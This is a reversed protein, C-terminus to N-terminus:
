QENGFQLTRSILIINNLWDASLHDLPVVKGGIEKAISEAMKSDFQKQIFVTKIELERATDIVNKIQAPSPEKGDIEISIEEFGYDRAFYALAPHYIIFKRNKVESLMTKLQMDLKELDNYFAQYNSRFYASDAPDTVIMQDLINKTMVKVEPVSMWIHPDIGTHLHEDHDEHDDAHEENEAEDNHGDHEENDEGHEEVNLSIMDVGASTDNIVMSKNVSRFKDLWAKEFELHGITFYVSSGSLDVLSRPSPEFTHPSVGPPLLVNIEYKDGTIREVFYKQPLISVTIVKRSPKNGVTCGALMFVAAVTLLIIRKM